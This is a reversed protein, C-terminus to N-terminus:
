QGPTFELTQEAHSEIDAREIHLPPAENRRWLEAEDAHHPSDPDEHQGGPLANFARPGQDTMEVVLRQSPGSQSGSPTIDEPRWLGFNQVDVAGYDGDRPFGIPFEGSGVPPVSVVGSDALAQVLQGFRVAHLRGWRWEDWDAGLKAELWAVAALVARVVREARTEIVDTTRLDDWLVTDNWESVSRYSERFTYLEAAQTIPDALSLELMRAVAQTGPRQGMAEVEDDFALGSLHTIAVNFITTAVSDAIEGTETAGVGHPTELTWAMLRARVAGLVERGDEGADTMLADLAADGTADGLAQTISAIIPERITEGLSSKTEAQLAQMEEVTIDGRATLADLREVIRHMRYGTAFHGGLYHPDNCPNGDDTAGVNDQNANAIYGRAPNRDQPIAADPLRETWEHGGTGPLVYLPSIGTVQGDDDVAFSCADPQRQPIRSRTSWAIEGDRSVFSFNQAGVEFHEIAALADDVGRASLLGTFFALENSVDHGTYRVSLASGTPSAADEPGVISDPIIPGHHPVVWIVQEVPADMGAVVISETIRELPVDAPGSGDDFRVSAPVWEPAEETGVNEFTVVEAYVDTVDYGTTTASWALDRNFGLVVGPLGAFAVGQADIALEGDMRATNLHVYWWVPPSMLQLHPDNSLIPNGSATHDGHVVWSNSGYNEDHRFVARDRLREFFQEGGRLSPLSPLAPRPPLPGPAPPPADNFGERTYVQRAQRTSWFDAYAGARAALPEAAADPEFAAQAGQLAASRAIDADASYSLSFSQYRALAFVDAPEWHGFNDSARLVQFLEHGRPARYGPARVEEDIYANIGAVFAEAVRRTLDDEPLSEYIERGVRRFGLFRSDMDAGVLSADLNGLVAALQGTVGRRILEMQVIRDRAMVYGQVMVLDHVTSAYIHPMGREDIIVEVPGDLGDLAIDMPGADHPAAADMGADTVGEDDDCGTMGVLALVIGLRFLKRTM